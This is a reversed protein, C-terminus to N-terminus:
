WKMIGNNAIKESQRLRYRCIRVSKPSKLNKNKIKKLNTLGGTQSSLIRPFTTPCLYSTVDKLELTQEHRISVKLKKM